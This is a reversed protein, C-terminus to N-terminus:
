KKFKFLASLSKGAMTTFNYDKEFECLMHAFEEKCRFDIFPALVVAAAIEVVKIASNIRAQNIELKAKEMERKHKTNDIDIQNTTKMSEFEKQFKRNSEERAEDLKSKLIEKELDQSARKDAMEIERQHKLIDREKDFQQQNNSTEIDHKYRLAEKQLDYEKEDIKLQRDIADMAEKFAKSDTEKMAETLKQAILSELLDRNEKKM